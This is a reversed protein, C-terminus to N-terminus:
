LEWKIEDRRNILQNKLEEQFCSVDKMGLMKCLHTSRHFYIPLVRIIDDLDISFKDCFMNVCKMVVESFWNKEFFTSDIMRQNSGFITTGTSVILSILDTLCLGNLAFNEFSLIRAEKDDSILVDSVTLNGHIPSTFFSKNRVFYEVGELSASGILDVLANKKEEESYKRIEETTETFGMLWESSARLFKSVQKKKQLKSSLYVTGLTGDLYSKFLVHLGNLKAFGYAKEVTNELRTGDLLKELMQLNEFETLLKGPEANSVKAVLFLRGKSYFFVTQTGTRHERGSQVVFDIEDSTLAFNERLYHIISEM